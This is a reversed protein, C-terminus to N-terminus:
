DELEIICKNRLQYAPSTHYMHCSNILPTYHYLTILPKYPVGCQSTTAQETLRGLGSTRRGVSGLRAYLWAHPSHSGRDVVLTHVDIWPGTTRIDQHQTHPPRHTSRPETSHTPHLRTADAPPGQIPVLMPPTVRPDHISKRMFLTYGEVRQWGGLSSALHDPMLLRNARTPLTTCGQLSLDKRFATDATISSKSSNSEIM